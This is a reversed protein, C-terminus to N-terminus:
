NSLECLMREYFMCASPISMRPLLWSRLRAVDLNIHCDRSSICLCVWSSKVLVDLAEQANRLGNNNALYEVNSPLYVAKDRSSRMYREIAERNWRDDLVIPFTIRRGPFTMDTVSSPLSGEIEVLKSLLDSQSIKRPDYHVQSIILRYIIAIAVESLRVMTSRICPALEEVHVGAERIKLELAHVRARLSMDLQMEGYEVLIASDGAQNSMLFLLKMVLM